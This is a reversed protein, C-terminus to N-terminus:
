LKTFSVNKLIIDINNDGKNDLFSNDSTKYKIARERLHNVFDHDPRISQYLAKFFPKKQKFIVYVAFLPIQILTFISIFAGLWNGWRPYVYDLYVLGTWQTMSYIFITWLLLPCLISWSIIWFWRFPLRRQFMSEIDRLFNKIGYIWMIGVIEFAGILVLSIESSFFDMLTIVYQGGRTVCPLGLLFCIVCFLLRNFVRRRAPFIRPLADQLGSIFAEMLAFESNLGLDYLMVFFLVNWLQPVPLQSIAEPYVIFALGQGSTTVESVPVGLKKSMFGLVSFIVLGSFISTFTDLLSIFLADKYCRNRYNGFSAFSILCGWGIGASFFAQGAAASWVKIELLKDWRPTLFYLIGEKAGDLTVGRVFLIFLVVYPLSTTVYAVKGLSKIGKFICAFILLWSFFLLGVLPWRLGAMDHLGASEGIDLVYHHWFEDTPSIKTANSYTSNLWSLNNNMSVMTANGSRFRLSACNPTNFSNDCTTWLLTTRFSSVIYFLAYAMIINYFISIVFLIAIQAWGIGTLLPCINFSLPPGFGTFQGISLEMFYMPLGCLILMMFYPILFAGGGNAYCIYPFRWINGLGVSFGICSLLFEAHSSWSDRSASLDALGDGKVICKEDGRELEYDNQNTEQFTGDLSAESADNPNFPYLDQSVHNEVM